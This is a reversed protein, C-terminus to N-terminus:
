TGVNELFMIGGDEPYLITLELNSLGILRKGDDM